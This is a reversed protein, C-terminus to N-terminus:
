PPGLATDKHNLGTNPSVHLHLHDRHQIDATLGTTCTLAPPGLSTDRHKLGNYPQFMDTFLDWHQIDVILGMTPHFM